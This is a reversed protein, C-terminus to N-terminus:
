GLAISCQLVFADADGNITKRLVFSQCGALWAVVSLYMDYHLINKFIMESPFCSMNSESMAITCSWVYMSVSLLSGLFIEMVSARDTSAMMALEDDFIAARVFYMWAWATLM